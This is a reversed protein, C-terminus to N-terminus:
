EPKVPSVPEYERHLDQIVYLIYGVNEVKKIIAIVHIDYHM